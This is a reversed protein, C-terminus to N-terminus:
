WYHHRAWVVEYCCSRVQGRLVFRLHIVPNIESFIVKFGFCDLLQFYKWLKERVVPMLVSESNHIEMGIQKVNKLLNPTNAFVDHFFNLEAGEVDIKLYDITANELSLMKLITEYRAMKTSNIHADTDSIGLDYFMINDSRRHTAKNITPDFAFVKCNFRKDLDDDFSFDREIGFSLAICNGPVINYEKSMCMWKEGVMYPPHTGLQGGLMVLKDCHLKRHDIYNYFDDANKMKKVPCTVKEWDQDQRAVEKWGDDSASEIATESNVDLNVPKSTELWMNSYFIGIIVLLGVIVAIITKQPSVCTHIKM